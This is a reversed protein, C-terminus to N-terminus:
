GRLYTLRCQIQYRATDTGPIMVYGGTTAEIKMPTCGEPLTPLNKELTQTELWAAFDDYFGINGLQQLIEEGFLYRSALVFVLQKIGANNTYRKVWENGPM